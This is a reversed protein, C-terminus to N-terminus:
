EDVSGFWGALQSDDIWHFDSIGNANVDIWFGSGGLLNGASSRFDRLKSQISTDTIRPLFNSNRQQCAAQAESHTLLSGNTWLCINIDNYCKSFEACMVQRTLLVIYGTVSMLTFTAAVTLKLAPSVNCVYM